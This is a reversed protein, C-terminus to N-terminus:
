HKHCNTCSPPGEYNDSKINDLQNKVQMKILNIYQARLDAQENKEDDTLKNARQKAALENIRAILTNM